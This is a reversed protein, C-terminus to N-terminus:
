GTLKAGFEAGNVDSEAWSESPADPPNEWIYQRVKYYNYLIDEGGTYDTSDMRCIGRVKRQGADDKRGAINIAVAKIDSGTADLNDYAFSDIENVVDTVNYTTDDDLSNGDDVNAYNNTGSPVPTWQAYNGSGSPWLCDVRCDGHFDNDDIYLDDIYINGTAAPPGILQVNNAGATSLAKTDVGSGSVVTSENLRVEYTGASDHIYVKFEFYQWDGIAVVDPDSSGLLTGTSWGRYVDISGDERIIATTQADAGYLFGFKPTTSDSTPLGTLRYAFGLVLTNYATTFQKAVYSEATDIRWARTGPWRADVVSSGGNRTSWKDLVQTSGYHDFGDIFLLSM